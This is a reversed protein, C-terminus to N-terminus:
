KVEVALPLVVAVRERHLVQGAAAYPALRRLQAGALAELPAEPGYAPLGAPGVWGAEGGLLRDLFGKREPLSLLEVQADAALGAHEKALRIAEDLGGLRDVLGVRRASAGAWIRGDAVAQVRAVDMRRGAAVKRVFDDYTARMLREIVAREDASFPQSEDALGARRGRVITEKHIGLKDYLGGLVIKGGVVGISGTITTPQAVIATAPAAVYYGGSAAVDGMSAIVPKAKACLAVEHWILDSALVSGGPSNVRLVVARVAPDHRMRRLALVIPAAAAQEGGFLDLQGSGVVIPGTVYVVGVRPLGSAAPEPPNLRSMMAGLLAMPNSMASESLGQRGFREKVFQTPGKLEDKVHADFGDAYVVWDVLGAKLAGKADYPGGDIATKAAEVSLGRGAAVEAAMWEYTEDLVDTLVKKLEPSMADATFQESVGKYAGMQLLDARVGLRDLLGKIFYVEATLGVLDVGGAPVLGIRDASAALLYEANGASELLCFVRKGSARIAAVKERLAHVQGFTLGAQGPKLVVAAVRDSTRARELAEIVEGVSLRMPTLLELVGPREALTGPFSMEVINRVPQDADVAPGAAAAAGAAWVWAIVAAQRRAACLCAALRGKRTHVM